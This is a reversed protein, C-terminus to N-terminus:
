GKEYVYRSGQTMLVPRTEPALQPCLRMFAEPDGNHQIFMWFHSPIVVKPKLIATARVADAADLNGFRGNIPPILVDIGLAALPELKESHLCTDGMVYVRVGELDFVIGVADPASEGHDAYVALLEVGDLRYRDGEHLTWIRGEPIGSSRFLDVCAPPGAFITRLNRQYVVPVAEPDLHDGHHHTTVYLDATVEEPSVVSAMIRRFGYLKEVSDTLYPDVYVVRSSPSKFAFGAQALWFIALSGPAVQTEEIMKAVRM